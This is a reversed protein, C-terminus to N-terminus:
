EECSSGDGVVAFSPPYHVTTGSDVEFGDIEGTPAQTFKTVAGTITQTAPTELSVPERQQADTSQQAFGPARVTACILIALVFHALAATKMEM